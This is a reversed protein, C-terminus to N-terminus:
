RIKEGIQMSSAKLETQTGDTTIGTERTGKLYRVVKKAEEWHTQGPNQLFQSLATVPFAVDPRTGQAAYMLSGIIERYPVNKM